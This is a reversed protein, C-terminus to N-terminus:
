APFQALIEDFADFWLPQQYNEAVGVFCQNQLALQCAAEVDANGFGPELMKQYLNIAPAVHSNGQVEKQLDLPRNENLEGNLEGFSYSSNGILLKDPVRRRLEKLTSRLSGLQDVGPKAKLAIDYVTCQDLFLGDFSDSDLVAQCSDLFTKQWLALSVDPVRRYKNSDVKVMLESNTSDRLWLERRNYISAMKRHGPGPVTTEEATMQYALLKISPNLKRLKRRWAKHISSDDQPVIVLPFRAIIADRWPEKLPDVYATCFLPPMDHTWSLDIGRWKRNGGIDPPLPPVTNGAANGTARYFAGFCALGAAAVFRRRNLM